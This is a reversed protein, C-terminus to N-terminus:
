GALGVDQKGGLGDYFVNRIDTDVIEIVRVDIQDTLRIIRKGLLFDDDLFVEFAACQHDAATGGSRQLFQLLLDNGVRRYGVEIGVIVVGRQGENGASFRDNEGRAKEIVM